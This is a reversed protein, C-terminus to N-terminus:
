FIAMSLSSDPRKAGTELGGPLGIRLWNLLSVWSSQVLPRGQIHYEQHRREWSVEGASTALSVPPGPLEQALEQAEKPCLAQRPRAPDDQTRPSPRPDRGGTGHGLNLPGCNPSQPRVSSCEARERDEPQTVKSLTSAIDRPRLEMM